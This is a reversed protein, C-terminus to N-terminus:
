IESKLEFRDLVKYKPGTPMLESKMLIFEKVEFDADKFNIKRLENILEKSNQTKKVRAVTIHSVFEDKSQIKITSKNILKYLHNLEPSIVDVWITRINKENGFFGAKGLKCGFKQFKIQSLEKKIKEVNENTAEGLFKLTLHLNEKPVFNGVVLNESKIQNFEHFISEKVERPLDIAIFCRM